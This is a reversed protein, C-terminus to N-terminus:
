ADFDKRHCLGDLLENDNMTCTRVLITLKMPAMQPSDLLWTEDFGCLMMVIMMRARGFPALHADQGVGHTLTSLLGVSLRRVLVPRGQMFILGAATPNQRVGGSLWGLEGLFRIGSVLGPPEDATASM